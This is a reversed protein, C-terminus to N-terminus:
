GATSRNIAAYSPVTLFHLLLTTTMGLPLEGEYLISFNCFPPKEQVLM